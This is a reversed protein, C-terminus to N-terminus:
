ETENPDNLIDWRRLEVSGDPHIILVERGLLRSLERVKVHGCFPLKIWMGESDDHFKIVEDWAFAQVIAIVASVALGHYAVYLLTM